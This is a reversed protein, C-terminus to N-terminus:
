GNTRREAISGYCGPSKKSLAFIVFFHSVVGLAPRMKAFATSKIV